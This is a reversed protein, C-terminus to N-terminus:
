DTTLSAVARALLEALQLRNSRHPVSDCSYINTIGADRLRTEATQGGLAHTVLCDIRDVGAARAATAATALTGGSSLMDDVLVLHSGTQIQKPLTITVERDGHRQKSAVGYQLGTTDALARVWQESEQDPGLLFADQLERKGQIFSAMTATAKLSFSQCGPIVDSLTSIRHLHPDVTILDDLLEGILAGVARQSVAQGPEFATDQRMYCLYPAVLTIRKVGVQRAQHAALLLEILKDNPDNLSRCLVIWEPLLPPLSVQSEGDPFCHLKIEAYDIKAARALRQAPHRYDPFGLLLDPPM